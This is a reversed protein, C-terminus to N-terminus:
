SRPFQALLCKVLFTPGARWLSLKWHLGCAVAELTRLVEALHLPWSQVGSVWLLLSSKELDHFNSRSM